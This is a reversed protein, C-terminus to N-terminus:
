FWKKPHTIRIRRGVRQEIIRHCAEAYKGLQLFRRDKFSMFEKFHGPALDPKIGSLTQLWDDDHEYNFRILDGTISGHLKLQGAIRPKHKKWRGVSAPKIPRVSRLAQKSAETVSAQEHYRSFLSEKKLFPIKQSILKQTEDPNSVFAEYKVPIFRPHDVIQDYFRLYHRWFKLGAWYRNPDKKHKSSIVDRPDRIMCIVYLDPDIILSPRVITIDKPAKSLFVSPRGRARTFLRDEHNTVAEIQYCTKMVEVMLTTGTRPSLGVIHIRKM